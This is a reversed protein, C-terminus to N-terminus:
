VSTPAMSKSAGVELVSGFSCSNKISKKRERRRGKRGEKRRENRGAKKM